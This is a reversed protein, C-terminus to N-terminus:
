RLIISPASTGARRLKHKLQITRKSNTQVPFVLGYQEEFNIEITERMKGSSVCRYLRDIDWISFSVDAGGITINKFAIPKVLGNTLACVRVTKILEKQKNVTIAFEYTDNDKEFSTYLDNNAKQYLQIARKIATDVDNQSVSKPTMSESFICVFIDLSSYDEAIAYANLQLGYSRFPCMIPETVEGADELYELMIYTLFDDKSWGSTEMDSAIYVEEMFSKYFEDINKYNIMKRLSELFWM